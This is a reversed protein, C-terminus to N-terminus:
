KELSHVIDCNMIWKKITENFCEALCLQQESVLKGRLVTWNKYKKEATPWEIFLNFHAFSVNEDDLSLNGASYLENENNQLM